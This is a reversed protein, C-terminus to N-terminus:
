KNMINILKDYYIIILTKGFIQIMEYFFMLIIFVGFLHKKKCHNFRNFPKNVLIKYFILILCNKWLINYDIITYKIVGFM